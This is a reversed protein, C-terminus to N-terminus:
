DVDIMGDLSEPRAPARFEILTTQGDGSEVYLGKHAGDPTAELTLRAPAQVRHSLHTTEGGLSIVLEGTPGPRERSLGQLVADHVLTERRGSKDTTVTITVLWGRHQQTFERYFGPWQDSPIDVTALGDENM